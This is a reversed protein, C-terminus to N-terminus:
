LQHSTIVTTTTPTLVKSKSSSTMINTANSPRSSSRPTGNLQKRSSAPTSTHTSKLPSDCSNSSTHQRQSLPKNTSSLQSSTNARSSTGITTSSDWEKDYYFAYPLEKGATRARVKASEVHQVTVPSSKIIPKRPSLNMRKLINNNNPQTQKSLSDNSALPFLNM